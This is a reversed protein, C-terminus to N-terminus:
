SRGWRKSMAEKAGDIIASTRAGSGGRWKMAEDVARHAQARTSAGPDLKKGDATREPLKAMYINEFHVSLRTAVNLPAIREEPDLMVTVATEPSLDMLIAMQEDHLEKGGLAVASIDHQWLMVADLPGECIVLDGTLRAMNWGILLRRHDAEPPNLYKPEQEGTMDRATWSHGSPCVIPIILRGAYRGVRCFGMGWARATKSKIRREKLYGPLAWTRKKADYCPRFEDPLEFDVAAEEPEDEVNAHPRLLKIKDALTILTERRRLPVSNKFVYAAASSWDIDEIIAVLGVISRGRIGCSNCLFRGSDKNVYFKGWKGCEENPCAATLEGSGSPRLRELKEELYSEVDFHM